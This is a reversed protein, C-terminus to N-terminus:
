RYTGPGTRSTSSSTWTWSALVYEESPWSKRVVTFMLGVTVNTSRILAPSSGWMSTTSFSSTVCPWVSRSTRSCAFASMLSDLCAARWVANEASPSGAPSPARITSVMASEGAAASKFGSSRM